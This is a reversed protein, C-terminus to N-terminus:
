FKEMFTFYTTDPIKIGLDAEEAMAVIIAEKM